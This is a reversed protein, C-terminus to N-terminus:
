ARTFSPLSLQRKFDLGRGTPERCLCHERDSDSFVPGPASHVTFATSVLQSAVPNAAAPISGRIKAAEHNM